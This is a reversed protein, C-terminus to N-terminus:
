HFNFEEEISIGLKINLNLLRNLNDYLKMGSLNQTQLTIKKIENINRLSRSNKSNIDKLNSRIKEICFLLSRPTSKDFILFRSITKEDIINQNKWMFSRYSSMTRLILELHLESNEFNEFTNNKLYMTNLMRITNDFREIFTGLSCFNLIENKLMTKGVFGFILAIKKKISNLFFSLEKENINKGSYEELFLWCSNIAEWVDKTLAVRSKRANTRAKSFLSIVNNPNIKDKLIFNIIKINTKKQNKYFMEIATTKLISNWENINEPSILNLQFGTEVLYIYNEAREIYRFMWFLSDANSGLM